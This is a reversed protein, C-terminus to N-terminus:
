QERDHSKIDEIYGTQFESIVKLWNDFKGIFKEIRPPKGQEVLYPNGSIESADMDLTDALGQIYSQALRKSTQTGSIADTWVQGTKMIYGFNVPKGVPPHWRLILTKKYEPLVGIPELRRLFNKLEAELEPHRGKISEFFQQSTITERDSTSRPKPAELFEVVEARQDDIRVIGREIGYTQALTSPVVIIEETDPNRWVGLEVLAFTFHFGAHSQLGDVLSQLETRIGDGVVLVLIRGRQLNNVIADIFQAEELTDPDDVMEYLSNPVDRGSFDSKLIANEFEQYSMKFLSAAYDLAQAVVQRRMEPNRWLKVEVIIIEGDPTVFLNDLFGSPLALEMCIPIAKSLGPEIQDIPLCSPNEHILTQLWVEKFQSEAGGINQKQFAKSVGDRIIVPTGNARM